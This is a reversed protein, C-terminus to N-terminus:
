GGRANGVEVELLVMVVGWKGGPSKRRQKVELHSTSVM